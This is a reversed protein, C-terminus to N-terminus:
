ESVEPRTPLEIDEKTCVNISYSKDDIEIRIDDLPIKNGDVIAVANKLGYEM